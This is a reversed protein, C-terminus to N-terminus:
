RRHRLRNPLLLRTRHPRLSRAVAWRQRLLGSMLRRRRLSVSDSPDPRLRPLCRRRLNPSRALGM